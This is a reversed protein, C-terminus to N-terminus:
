CCFLVSAPALNCHDIFSQTVPYPKRQSVQQTTYDSGWDDWGSDGDDVGGERSGDFLSSSVPPPITKKTAGSKGRGGRGGVGVGLREFLDSDEAAMKKKSTTVTEFTDFFDAGSSPINKSDREEEEEELPEFTGWGDDEWEEEGGRKDLGMGMGGSNKDHSQTQGGSINFDQIFLAINDLSIVRVDYYNVEWEDKDWGEGDDGVERGEGSREARERERLGEGVGERERSATTKVVSSSGATAVDPSSSEGSKAVGGAVGGSKYFKSTISSM